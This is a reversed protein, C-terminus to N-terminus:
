LSVGIADLNMRISLEFQQVFDAFNLAIYARKLTKRKRKGGGKKKKGKGANTRKKLGMRSDPGDVFHSESFSCVVLM